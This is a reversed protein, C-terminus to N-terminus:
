CPGLSAGAKSGFRKVLVDPLTTDSASMADGSRVLYADPSNNRFVAGMKTGPGTSTLETNQAATLM